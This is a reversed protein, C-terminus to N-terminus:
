ASHVAWTRDQYFISLTTIFGIIQGKCLILILPTRTQNTLRDLIMIRCIVLRNLEPQTM